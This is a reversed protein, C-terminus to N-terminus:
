RTTRAGSLQAPVSTDAVIRLGLGALLGKIRNAHETRQAKLDILERHLRQRDEDDVTPIRTVAWVRKEGNHWRILM